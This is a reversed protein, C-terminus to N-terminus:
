IVIIWRTVRGRPSPLPPSFLVFFIADVDSILFPNHMLYL